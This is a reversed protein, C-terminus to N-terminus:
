VFYKVFDAIHAVLIYMNELFIYKVFLDCYTLDSVSWNGMDVTVFICAHKRTYWVKLLLTIYLIVHDVYVSIKMGTDNCIFSKYGPLPILLLKGCTPLWLILKLIAAFYTNFKHHKSLDNMFFSLLNKPCMIPGSLWTNHKLHKLSRIM